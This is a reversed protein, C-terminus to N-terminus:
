VTRSGGALLKEGVERDADSAAHDTLPKVGRCLPRYLMCPFVGASENDENHEVAPYAKQIPMWWLFTVRRSWHIDRASSRGRGKTRLGRRRTGPQRSRM